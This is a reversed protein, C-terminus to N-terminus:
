KSTPARKATAATGSRAAERAAIDGSSGNYGDGSAGMARSNRLLPSAQLAENSRASAGAQTTFRPQLDSRVERCSSEDPIMVLFAGPFRTQVADGIRLSLDIPTLTSQFTLVNRADYVSYCNAEALVPVAVLLCIALRAPLRM